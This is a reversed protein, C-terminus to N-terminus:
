QQLLFILWYKSLIERGTNLFLERSVIFCTEKAQKDINSKIKCLIRSFKVNHNENKSLDSVLASSSADREREKISALLNCKTMGISKEKRTCTEKYIDVSM